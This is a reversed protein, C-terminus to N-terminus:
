LVGKPLSGAAAVHFIDGLIGLALGAVGLIFYVFAFRLFFIRKFVLTEVIDFLIGLLASAFSLIGLLSLYGALLGLGADPWGEKAGTLYLAFVWVDMIFFFAFLRSPILQYPRLSIKVPSDPREGEPKEKERM